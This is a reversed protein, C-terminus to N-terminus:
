QTQGKTEPCDRISINTTQKYSTGDWVFFYTAAGNTVVINKVKLVRVYRIVQDIVTADIMVDPAKCEVLIEPNLNRDFAVIDARFTKGNYKFPWESQMRIEPIGVTDRLWAIVAQRVGEEPTLAVEKRRLPDYVTSM